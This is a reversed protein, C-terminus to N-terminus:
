PKNTTVDIMDVYLDSSSSFRSAAFDSNSPPKIGCRDYRDISTREGKLPDNYLLRNAFDTCLRITGFKGMTKTWKSSRFAAGNADALPTIPGESAKEWKTRSPM